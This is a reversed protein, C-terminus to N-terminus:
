LILNWSLSNVFFFFAGDSRRPLCCYVMMSFSLFINVFRPINILFIQNVICFFFDIRLLIWFIVIIIIIAWSFCKFVAHSRVLLVTFARILAWSWILAGGLAWFKYYTGEKLYAGAEGEGSFFYTETRPVIYSVYVTLVTRKIFHSMTLYYLCYHGKLTARTQKENGQYFYGYGDKLVAICFNFNILFGFAQEIASIFYM